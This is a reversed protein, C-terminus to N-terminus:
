RTNNTHLLKIIIILAKTKHNNKLAVSHVEVNLLLAYKNKCLTM